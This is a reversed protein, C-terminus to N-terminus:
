ERSPTERFRVGCSPCKSDSDSVIEHCVPCLITENEDKKRGRTLMPLYRIVAYVMLLSALISIGWALAGTLIGVSVVYIDLAYVCLGMALLGGPVFQPMGVVKHQPMSSAVVAPEEVAIPATSAQLAPEAPPAVPGPAAVPAVEVAIAPAPPEPEVEVVVEAPHSMVDGHDDLSLHPPVELRAEPKKEPAPIEAPKRITLEIKSRLANDIDPVEVDM